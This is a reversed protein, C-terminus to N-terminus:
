KKKKAIFHEITGTFLVIILSYIHLIGDCIIDLGIFYITSFFLFFTITNLIRFFYNKHNIYNRCLFLLYYFLVGYIYSFLTISLQVKINIM